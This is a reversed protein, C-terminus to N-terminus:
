RGDVFIIAKYNSLINQIENWCTYFSIQGNEYEETLQNIQEIIFEKM